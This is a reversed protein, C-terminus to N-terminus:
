GRPPSTGGDPAAGALRTRGTWFLTLAVVAMVPAALGAPHQMPEPLVASNGFFFIFSAIFLSFGMRWVHRAIRRRQEALGRRLAIYDALTIASAIVGLCYFAEQRLGDLEGTPLTSVWLGSLLSAAATAAIVVLGAMVPTKSRGPRDAAAAWGTAVAHAAFVSLFATFLISRSFSMYLGSACLLLMCVAFVRGARRHSTSGMRLAFAAGGAFLCLTGTAFHLQGILPLSALAASM